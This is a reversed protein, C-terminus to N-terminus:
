RRITSNANTLSAATDSLASQTSTLQDNLSAVTSSSSSNNSGIVGNYYAISAVGAVVAGGVVGAGVKLFTRRDKPEMTKQSTDAM